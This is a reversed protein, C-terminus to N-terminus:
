LIGYNGCQQCLWAEADDDVLLLTSTVWAKREDDGQDALEGPTMWVLDASQCETCGHRLDRARLEGAQSWEMAHASPASAIAHQKRTRAKAKADRRAKSNQGMRWFTTRLVAWVRIDDDPALRQM